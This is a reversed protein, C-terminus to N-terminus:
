LVFVRFFCGGLDFDSSARTSTHTAAGDNVREPSGGPFFVSAFLQRDGMYLM